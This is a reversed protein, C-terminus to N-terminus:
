HGTFLQCFLRQSSFGGSPLRFVSMIPQIPSIFMEEIMTLQEFALQVEASLDEFNLVMNNVTSFKKNNNSCTSCKPKESPWMSKCNSCHFQKLKRIAKNFEVVGDVAWNQELLPENTSCDFEDM